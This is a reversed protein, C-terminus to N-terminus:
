RGRRFNLGSQFDDDTITTPESDLKPNANPDITGDSDERGAMYKADWEAMEAEQEPTMYGEPFMEGTEPNINELTEAVEQNFVEAEALVKSAQTMIRLVQQLMTASVASADKKALDVQMKAIDFLDQWMNMLAIKRRKIDFNYGVLLEATTKIDSKSVSM